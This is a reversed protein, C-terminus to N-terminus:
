IRQIGLALVGRLAKESAMYVLHGIHVCYVANACMTSPERTLMLTCRALYTWDYNDAANRALETEAHRVHSLSNSSLLSTENTPALLIAAFPRKKHLDQAQIQHDLAVHSAVTLQPHTLTTLPTPNTKALFPKSQPAQYLHTSPDSFM